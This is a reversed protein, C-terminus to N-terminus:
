GGEILVQGIRGCQLGGAHDAEEILASLRAAQRQTFLGPEQDRHNKLGLAAVIREELANLGDGRLASVALALPRWRTPLGVDTWSRPRDSKNVVVLGPDDSRRSSLKDLFPQPLDDSGDLVIIRLDAQTCRDAARRIALAELADPARAVGPTDVVTVPIGCIATPEAVWDRTTGPLDSVIARAAGFLRNALASKGSNPPGILAITASEVLIRGARAGDGLARLARRAAAQDRVALGALRDVHEPLVRRQHLLFDVTRRTRAHCLAHIVEAQFADAAPWPPDGGSDRAEIEVGRAQVALLLCEVVRTGGHTSIDVAPTGDRSLRASVIVDDVQRGDVVIQGYHLRQPSNPDLVAVGRRRKVPHFLDGVVEVAGPGSVRLVAIAGPGPPTLLRCRNPRDSRPMM